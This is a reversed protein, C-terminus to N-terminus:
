KGFLDNTLVDAAAAAAGDYFLEVPFTNFQHKTRIHSVSLSCSLRYFPRSVRQTSSNKPVWIGGRTVIM